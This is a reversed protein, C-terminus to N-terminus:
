SHVAARYGQVITDLHQLLVRWYGARRAEDRLVGMNAGDVGGCPDHIAIYAVTSKFRSTHFMLPDAQRELRNVHVVIEAMQEHDIPRLGGTRHIQYQAKWSEATDEPHLEARQAIEEIGLRVGVGQLITGEKEVVVEMDLDLMLYQTAVDIRRVGAAM